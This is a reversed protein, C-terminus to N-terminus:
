GNTAEPALCLVPAVINQVKTASEVDATMYTNKSFDAKNAFAEIGQNTDGCFKLLHETIPKDVANFNQGGKMGSQIEDASTPMAPGQAPYTMASPDGILANSNELM